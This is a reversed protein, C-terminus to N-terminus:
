LILFSFRSAFFISKDEVGLLSVSLRERTFRADTNTIPATSSWPVSCDGPKLQGSSFFALFTSFSFAEVDLALDLKSLVAESRILDALAEVSVLNASSSWFHDSCQLRRSTKNSALVRSLSGVKWITTAGMLEGGAPTTFDESGKMLGVLWSSLRCRGRCIQGSGAGRSGLMLRRAFRM